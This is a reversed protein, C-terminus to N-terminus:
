HTGYQHKRKAENIIDRAEKYDALIPIRSLSSAVGKKQGPYSIMCVWSGKGEWREKPVVHSINDLEIDVSYGWTSKSTAFRHLM